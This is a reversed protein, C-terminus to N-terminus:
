FAWQGSVFLNIFLALFLLSWVTIVAYWFRSRALLAFLIFIPFMTLSYRPASPTLTVSTAGLWNVTIWMVYLPRLKASSIIACIWGLAIFFLGQVAVIESQGPVRHMEDIMHHIEAGPWALSSYFLREQMLLLAFASGAFHFNILLYVAYGVPVIVIWLWRWQWRKTEVYQHVLEVLLTPILVLGTARTMTSLAGFMGALLWRDSRAALLCAFALALFLSETYGVHLFYATPFILFFWVARRAVKASHDIQVLRRLLLAAAASAIASVLLGGILADGTIHGLLRECWPFLPYVLVDKARYGMQAVQLYHRADWRNFLELWEHAHHFRRDNLVQFSKIGFLFILIKTALAWGVVLWDDKPLLSFARKIRQLATSKVNASESM